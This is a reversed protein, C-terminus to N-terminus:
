VSERESVNVSFGRAALFTRAEEDWFEPTGGEIKYAWETEEESEDDFNLKLSLYSGFDHPNSKISIYADGPPPFQRLLQAGFAQAQARMEPM